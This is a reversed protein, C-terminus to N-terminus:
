KYVDDQPGQPDGDHDAHDTLRVAVRDFSRQVAVLPAVQEDEPDRLAAHVGEDGKAVREDVAHQQHDVEGVAVHEHEAAHGGEERAPQSLSLPM